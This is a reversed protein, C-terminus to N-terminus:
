KVQLKVHNALERLTTYREFKHYVGLIEFSESGTIVEIMIMRGGTVFPLMLM